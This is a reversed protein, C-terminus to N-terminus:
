RIDFERFNSTQSHFSISFNILNLMLYFPLTEAIVHFNEIEIFNAKCVLRAIEVEQSRAHFAM